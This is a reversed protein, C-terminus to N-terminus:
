EGEKEALITFLGKDADWELQIQNIHAEFSDIDSKKEFVARMWDHVVLDVKMRRSLSSISFTLDLARSGEPGKGDSAAKVKELLASDRYFMEASLAPLIGSQVPEWNDGRKRLFSVDSQDRIIVLLAESNTQRLLQVSVQRSPEDFSESFVVADQTLSWSVSKSKPDAAPFPHYEAPLSKLFDDITWGRDDDPAFSVQKFVGNQKDWDLWVPRVAEGAEEFSVEDELEEPVYDCIDLLVRMRTGTRPPEFHLDLEGTTAQKSGVKESAEAFRAAVEADRFFMRASFKPLVQARIDQWKAGRKCLFFTDYESCLPDAKMNSVVVIAEGRAPKFLAMEFIPYPDDWDSLYAVYGNKSDKITSSATPPLAVFDGSFTRYKEPLHTLYDEVTQENAAAFAGGFASLVVLVGWLKPKSIM